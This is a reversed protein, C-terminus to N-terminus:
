GGADADVFVVVVSVNDRGGAQVAAAVLEDAAAQPDRHAGVVRMIASDDIEGSLGDSCIVFREGPSPPVVWVDPSPRPDSGLSRTIVHRLPHRAAEEADIVGADLLARVESHDRTIQSLQHDTVRYVRSDGINFVVWHEAGGADVVTLGAATTGMGRQDPTEQQAALIRRNAESLAQAVDDPREAPRDVLERLADIAM